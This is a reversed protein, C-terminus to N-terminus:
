TPSTLLLIRARAADANFADRLAAVGERLAIVDAMTKRGEFRSGRVEFM